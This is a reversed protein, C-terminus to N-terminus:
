MINFYKNTFSIFLIYMSSVITCLIGGWISDMIVMHFTWNKFLAYNTLEYISYISFGLFFANLLQPLIYAYNTIKDFNINKLVFHHLTSFLIIYIFFIPILLYDKRLRINKTMNTFYKSVSMLYFIDIIIFMIIGIVFKGLTILYKNQKLVGLTNKIM